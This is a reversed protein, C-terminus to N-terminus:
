WIWRWEMVRLNRHHKVPVEYLPRMTAYRVEHNLRTVFAILLRLLAQGGQRRDYSTVQGAINTVRAQLKSPLHIQNVLKHEVLLTMM